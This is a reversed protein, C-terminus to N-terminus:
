DRAGFAAARAPLVDNRGAGRAVPALAVAERVLDVHVRAHLRARRVRVDEDLEGRRRDRRGPLLVEDVVGGSAGGRAGRGAGGLAACGGDGGRRGAAGAGPAAAVTRPAGM